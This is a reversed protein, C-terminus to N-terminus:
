PAMEMKIPKLTASIEKTIVMQIEGNVTDKMPQIGTVVVQPEMM